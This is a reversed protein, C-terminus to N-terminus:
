SRFLRSYQMEHWSSAMALAPLSAGIQQENIDSGIEIAEPISELLRSLLQQAAVQGLPVLKTAAAIQNELWSWLYGYCCNHKDIQWYNAALAFASVFSIDQRQHLQDILNIPVNLQELLKVLAVGQATDSLRLEETERCALIVSNWYDFAQGNQEEVHQWQRLLVPVDTKALSEQMQMSLWDFSKEADMLWGKEVGYEFGQSFAYAGVPLAASSLQLLRLLSQDSLSPNNTAM